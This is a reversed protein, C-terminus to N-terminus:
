PLEKGTVIKVGGGYFSRGKCLELGKGQGVLWEGKVPMARNERPWYGQRLRENIQEIRQVLAAVREQAVVRAEDPGPGDVMYEDQTIFRAITIHASPVIYRPKMLLGTARLRDFLDRRLHHYTYTDGNSHTQGDIAEDGAAPVFSLAMATADYSVIPKVLRTRHHFTYDVLDLVVGSKQLHAAFGEIEAETRCSAMEMVTIHLSDPPTFWIALYNKDTSFSPDYTM